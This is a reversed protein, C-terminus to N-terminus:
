IFCIGEQKSLRGHLEQLGETPGCLSRSLSVHGPLDLHQLLYAWTASSRSRTIRFFEWAIAGLLKIRASDQRCFPCLPNQAIKPLEFQVWCQACTWRDDSRSYGPLCNGCCIRHCRPAVGVFCALEPQFRNAPIPPWGTETM